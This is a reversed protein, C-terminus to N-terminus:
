LQCQKTGWRWARVSGWSKSPRFLGLDVRPIRQTYKGCSYDLQSRQPIVDLVVEISM